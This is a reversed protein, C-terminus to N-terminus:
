TEYSLHQKCEFLARVLYKKAMPFSIKLERSIEELTMGYQRHLVFTARVNPSLKELAQVFQELCQEANAALAPDADATAQLESILDAVNVTSPSEFERMAHQQAVHLAVTFLYAEPSRIVEFDPIRLMRLFVEQIVDPIDSINRVRGHLFRRLKESHARALESLFLSRNLDPM